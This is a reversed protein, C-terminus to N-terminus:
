ETNASRRWGDPTAEFSRLARARGSIIKLAQEGSVLLIAVFFAQWLFHGFTIMVQLSLESWDISFLSM